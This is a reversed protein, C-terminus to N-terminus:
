PNKTWPAPPGFGSQPSQSSSPGTPAQLAGTMDWGKKKSPTVQGAVSEPATLTRVVPAAYVAGQALKLLFERRSEQAM